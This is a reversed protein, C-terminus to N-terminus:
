ATAASADDAAAQEDRSTTLALYDREAVRSLYSGALPAEPPAEIVVGPAGAGRIAGPGETERVVPREYLTVQALRYVRNFREAQRVPNPGDTILSELQAHGVIGKDAVFFCVWDGPSGYGGAGGADCIALVGRHAVVSEILQEPTTADDGTITAVWFAPAGAEASVAPEDLPPVDRHDATPRNMLDIVFDLAVGSRLLDVVELHSVRGASVQEGLALLSRVSVVRLAPFEAPVDLLRARAAYQRAVICLGISRTEAALALRELTSTANHETRIELAVELSGPSRWWGSTERESATLDYPGFEVAFGLFRGFAVLLDQLARHRQEGVSRQCEEILARASSIDTIGDLLFRRFRERATDFGQADDLQGVLPLLEHLSVSM